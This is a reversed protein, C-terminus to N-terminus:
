DNVHVKLGNVHIASFPRSPCLNECAGCGICKAEDVSPIRLGRPKAPDVPVMIIADVPCHRSCNGCSVGDRNVVCLDYDVTATGIHMMTKEEPTIAEIAGAPCVQSCKTCEPRCYGKEYQMQPQMLHGLDTSPRLVGNPCNAVCLQCATCHDYFNKVSKAGFPVLRETREPIKKGEIAALGGDMGEVQAKVTAATGAMVAGVIFARKSEDVSEAKAKPTPKEKMPRKAVEGYANRFKLGGLKCNELCDFCDVCRSSDITRSAADICHSKCNKECSKCGVCVSKDIVPRFLSFRSIFGLTTGVPCISNCYARGDLVALVTVLLLMAFALVPVVWGSPNVISSVIRGYTSYPALLAVVVQVGAILALVFVVWVGYRLVKMEKHFQYKFKKGGIKRRIWIVIDQYVGLPCIVSCYIRGVLATLIVIGAIVALNLALCAPLFQLKAM